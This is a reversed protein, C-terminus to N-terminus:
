LNFGRGSLYDRADSIFSNVLALSDVHQMSLDSEIATHDYDCINRDDRLMRLKNAYTSQTPFDSPLGGVKSHDKIDTSYYGNVALRVSKSIAYAAYYSRSVIQRWHSVGVSKAFEFHYEGLNFLAVVNKNIEDDFAKLSKKSLVHALENKLEVVNINLRLIHPPRM